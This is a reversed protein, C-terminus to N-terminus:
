AIAIGLMLSALAKPDVVEELSFWYAFDNATKERQTSGDEGQNLSKYFFQDQSKNKCFVRLEKCAIDGDKELYKQM